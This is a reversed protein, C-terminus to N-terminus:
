RNVASYILFDDDEMLSSLFEKDSLLHDKVENSIDEIVKGNEDTIYFKAFKAKKLEAADEIDYILDDDTDFFANDPLKHLVTYLKKIASEKKAFENVYSVSKNWFSKNRTASKILYWEGDSNISKLMINNNSEKITLKM